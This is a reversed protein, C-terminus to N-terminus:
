RIEGLAKGVERGRRGPQGKTDCEVDIDNQASAARDPARCPGDAAEIRFVTAGERDGYQVANRCILEYVDPPSHSYRRTRGTSYFRSQPAQEGCEHGTLM